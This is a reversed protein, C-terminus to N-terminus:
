AKPQFLSKDALANLIEPPASPQHSGMGLIGLVPPLKHLDRVLLATSSNSFKGFAFVM